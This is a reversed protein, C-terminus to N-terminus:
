PMSLRRENFADLNVPAQWSAYISARQSVWIENFHGANPGNVGGPRSSTIYLSLGNNSIASSWEHFGSNIVPGLNVPTSWPGFPGLREDDDDREGFAVTPRLIAALSLAGAGKLLQRRPMGRLASMGGIMKQQRRSHM